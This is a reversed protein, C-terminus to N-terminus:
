TTVAVRRRRLAAGALGFGSLMMAWSAPEPVFTISAPLFFTFDTSQGGFVQEPQGPLYVSVGFQADSYLSASVEFGTATPKLAISGVTSGPCNFLDFCPYFGGSITGDALVSWSAAQLFGQDDTDNNAYGVVIAPIGAYTLPNYSDGLTAFDPLSNGFTVLGNGYFLVSDVAPAGFGFDIRYPLKRPTCDENDIDCYGDVTTSFTEGDITDVVTRRALAPSTLVAAACLAAAATAFCRHM